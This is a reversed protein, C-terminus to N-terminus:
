KKDKDSGKDKGGKEEDLIDRIVSEINQGPAKGTRIARAAAIRQEKNSFSFTQRLVGRPRELEEARQEMVAKKVQAGKIQANTNRQKYRERLRKMEQLYKKRAEMIQRGAEEEAEEQTAAGGAVTDIKEQEIRDLEAQYTRGIRGAKGKDPSAEVTAMRQSRQEVVEQEAKEGAKKAKEVEIKAYADRRKDKAKRLDAGSPGTGGFKSKSLGTLPARLMSGVATQGFRTSGLARDAATAGRGVIQRAPASGMRKASKSVWSVAKAGGQVGILKAAVISFAAMGIVVIFNFIIAMKDKLLGEVFGENDSGSLGDPIIRTLSEGLNTGGNTLGNLVLITVWILALFIPAFIAQSILADWWKKSWDDKPLAMAAFALPSLIMLFILVVFRIILLIAAAAFVFAVVMFLFFSLIAVLLINLSGNVTSLLKEAGALDFASELGLQRMFAGSLGLGKGTNSVGAEEIQNYFSTAVINSADILAKTFFLSFNILLAIIIVHVLLKKTTATDMRLITMIAIYLIIFIFFINALDRFTGWAYTIVPLDRVRQAMEVITYDLTYNLLLGALGLVWGAFMILFSGIWSFVTELFEKAFEKAVSSGQSVAVDKALGLGCLAPSIACLWNADVTNIIQGSILKKNPSYNIPAFFGIVIVFILWGIYVKKNKESIKFM